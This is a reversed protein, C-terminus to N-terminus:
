NGKYLESLHPINLILPIYRYNIIIESIPLNHRWCNFYGALVGGIGCTKNFGYGAVRCIQFLYEASRALVGGTQIFVYGAMGHAYITRPIKQM